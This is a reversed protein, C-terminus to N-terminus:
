SFRLVLVTSQHLLVRTYLPEKGDTQREFIAKWGGFVAYLITCTLMMGATNNSYLYYRNKVQLRVSWNCYRLCHHCFFGLSSCGFTLRGPSLFWFSAAFFFPLTNPYIFSGTPFGGLSLEECVFADCFWLSSADSDFLFVGGTAVPILGGLFVVVVCRDFNCWLHSLYGSSKCAHAFSRAVFVVVFSWDISYRDVHKVVCALVLIHILILWYLAIHM